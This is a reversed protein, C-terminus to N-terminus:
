DREPNRLLRECALLHRVGDIDREQGDMVVRQLGPQGHRRDAGRCRRVIGLLIGDLQDVRRDGALAAVVERLRLDRLLSKRRPMVVSLPPLSASAAERRENRPMLLDNPGTSANFATSRSSLRPSSSPRIPWLPAPLLVSIFTSIPTTSGSAPAKVSSPRAISPALWGALACASPMRQTNWSSDSQGLRLAM